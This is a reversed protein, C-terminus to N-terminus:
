HRTIYCVHPPATSVSKMFSLLAQSSSSSAEQKNWSTLSPLRSRSNTSRRDNMDTVTFAVDIFQKTCSLFQLRVEEDPGADITQCAIALVRNGVLHFFYLHGAQM